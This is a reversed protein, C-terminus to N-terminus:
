LDVVLVDPKLETMARDLTRRESAEYVDFAEQLRRIWPHRNAGLACAVLLTGKRARAEGRPALGNAKKDGQRAFPLSEGRRGVLHPKRLEALVQDPTLGM